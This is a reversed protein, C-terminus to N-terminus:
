TTTRPGLYKVFWAQVENWWLRQNQPKAIWHGEDPFVILRGPINQRRLATFMSVGETYPVRYDLEGHTVLTPTRFRAAFLHPSNTRYQERM